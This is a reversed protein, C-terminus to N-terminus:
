FIRQKVAFFLTGMGILLATRPEPITPVSLGTILWNENVGQYTGSGALNYLGDDTMSIATADTFVWGNLDVSIEDTLWTQLNVMGLEETWLFADSGSNGIVVKGDSSIANAVSADDLRLAGLDEVGSATWRVARQRDNDDTAWGVIVSGDYSLSLAQSTPNSSLAALPTAANTPVTFSAAATGSTTTYGVATAGDGSVGLIQRSPGLTVQAGGNVIKIGSASSSGVIVGNDASIATLRSTSNGMSEQITPTWVGDVKEWTTSYDKKAETRTQGVIITGDQSIAYAYSPVTGTEGLFGPLWQIGDTANWIYAQNRNNSNVFIKYGVVQSGDGSIGTAYYAGTQSDVRGLATVTPAAKLSLPLFLLSLFAAMRKWRDVSFSHNVVTLPSNNPEM